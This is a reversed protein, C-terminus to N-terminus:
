MCACVTTHHSHAVVWVSDTVRGGVHANWLVRCCSSAGQIASTFVTTAFQVPRLQSKIDEEAERMADQGRSPVLDWKNVVLVVARGEAAALEAIRFDQVTVGTVADLMM